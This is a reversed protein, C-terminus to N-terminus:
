DNSRLEFVERYYAAVLEVAECLDSSENRHDWGDHIKVGDVFRKGTREVVDKPPDEVMARLKFEHAELALEEWYEDLQGHLLWFETQKEAYREDIGTRECAERLYTRVLGWRADSAPNSGYSASPDSVLVDRLDSRAERRLLEWNEIEDQVFLARMFSEGAQRARSRDVHPFEVEYTTAMRDLARAGAAAAERPKGRLLCGEREDQLYYAKLLTRATATPGLDSRDMGPPDAGPSSDPERLTRM